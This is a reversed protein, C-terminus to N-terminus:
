RPVKNITNHIEGEVAAGDAARLVFKIKMQMVPKLGPIELTVRRQDASLRAARVEVRDRGKKEPNSVSYDDSGYKETWRYNWHEVSWNQLDTADAALPESFAVEIVDRRM